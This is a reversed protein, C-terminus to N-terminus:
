LTSSEGIAHHESKYKDYSFDCRALAVFIGYKNKFAYDGHVGRGTIISMMPIEITGIVAEHRKNSSGEKKYYIVVLSVRSNCNKMYEVMATTLRLKISERFYLVECVSSQVKSQLPQHHSSLEPSEFFPDVHLSLFFDSQLKNDLALKRPEVAASIEVNLFGSKPLYMEKSITQGLENEKAEHRSYEIALKIKGVLHPEDESTTFLGVVKVESELLEGCPIASTCINKGDLVVDIKLVNDGLYSEIPINLVVSHKGVM